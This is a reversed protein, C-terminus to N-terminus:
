GEDDLPIKWSIVLERRGFEQAADLDNGFYVDIARKYRANMKDMVRYLGLGEVRVMADPELGMRLLDRSVAIAKMGPKLRNNWAATYPTDDTEEPRSTYATANVMVTKWRPKPPPAEACGAVMALLAAAAVAAVITAVFRSM